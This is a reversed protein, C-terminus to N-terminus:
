TYLAFLRYNFWYCPILGRSAEEKGTEGLMLRASRRDVFRDSRGTKTHLAHSEAPGAPHLWSSAGTSWGPRTNHLLLPFTAPPLAFRERTRSPSALYKRMVPQSAQSINIQRGVALPTRENINFQFRHSRFIEM